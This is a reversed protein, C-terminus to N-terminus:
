PTRHPKWGRARGEGDWDIEMIREVAERDVPGLVHPFATGAAVGPPPAPVAEEWEVPATLRDEDLCLVLLPRPATRYFANVVAVTAAEDPSCHVFGDTALSAPAYPRDPRASWEEPTVVHYIM